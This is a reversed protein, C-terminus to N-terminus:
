QENIGMTPPTIIAVAVSSDKSMTPSKLAKNAVKVNETCFMKVFFTLVVLRCVCSAEKRGAERGEM